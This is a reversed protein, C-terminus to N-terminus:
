AANVRARALLSGVIKQAFDETLHNEDRFTVVGKAMAPCVRDPCVVNDLSVVAVRPYEQALAEWIREARGLGPLEYVPADCDAAVAAESLCDVMPEQTQPLPEIVVVKRAQPLLRELMVRSGREVAKAWKRSGPEAVEGNVEVPRELISHSALFVVDPEVDSATTIAADRVVSDCDM